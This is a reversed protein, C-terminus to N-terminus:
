LNNPQMCVQAKACLPATLICLALVVSTTERKMCLRKRKLRTIRLVSFHTMAFFVSYARRLNFSIVMQFFFFVLVTYFQSAAFHLARSKEPPRPIFCSSSNIQRSAPHLTSRVCAAIRSFFWCHRELFIRLSCLNQWHFLDSWISTNKEVNSTSVLRSHRWSTTTTAHSHVAQRPSPKIGFFDEMSWSPSSGVNVQPLCFLGLLISAAALFFVRTSAFICTIFVYKQTPIANGPHIDKDQGFKFPPAHQLYPPACNEDADPQQTPDLSVLEKQPPHATSTGFEDVSVAKTTLKLKNRLVLDATGDVLCSLSPISRAKFLSYDNQNSSYTVVAMSAPISSLANETSSVVVITFSRMKASACGIIGHHCISDLVNIYKQIAGEYLFRMMCTNHCSVNSFDRIFVIKQRHLLVTSSATFVDPLMAVVRLWFDSFNLQRSDTFLFLSELAKAIEEFDQRHHPLPKYVRCHVQIFATVTQIKLFARGAEAERWLRRCCPERPLHNLVRTNTIKTRIAATNTYFHRSLLHFQTKVDVVCANNRRICCTVSFGTASLFPRNSNRMEEPVLRTSCCFVEAFSRVRQRSSENVSEFPERNQANKSCTVSCGLPTCPFSSSSLFKCFHKQGTSPLQMEHNLDLTAAHSSTTAPPLVFSVVESPLSVYPFSNPQSSGILTTIACGKLAVMVGVAVIICVIRLIEFLPPMPQAARYFFASLRQQMKLSKCQCEGTNRSLLSTESQSLHQASLVAEEPAPGEEPSSSKYKIKPSLQLDKKFIPCV